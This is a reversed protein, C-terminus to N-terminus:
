VLDSAPVPNFFHLGLFDQPRSLSAALTDISLTVAEEAGVQLNWKENALM